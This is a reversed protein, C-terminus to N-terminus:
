LKTGNQKGRILLYTILLIIIAAFLCLLDIIDFSIIYLALIKVPTFLWIFFNIWEM